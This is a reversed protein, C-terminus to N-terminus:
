SNRWTETQTVDVWKTPLGVEGRYRGLLGQFEGWHNEIVRKIAMSRAM